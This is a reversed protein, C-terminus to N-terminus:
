HLVQTLLWGAALGALLVPMEFAVGVMIWGLSDMELGRHRTQWGLRWFPFSAVVVAVAGLVLSLLGKPAMLVFASFGIPALFSLMLERGGVGEMEGTREGEPHRRTKRWELQERLRKIVDDKSRLEDECRSLRSTLEKVTQATELDPSWESEEEM